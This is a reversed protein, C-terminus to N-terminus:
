RALSGKGHKQDVSLATAGLARVGGARAPLQGVPSGHPTGCNLTLFLWADPIETRGQEDSERSGWCQDCEPGATVTRIRAPRLAVRPLSRAHASGPLAGRESGARSMSVKSKGMMTGTCSGSAQQGTKGEERGM